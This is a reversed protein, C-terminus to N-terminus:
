YGASDMPVYYTWAAAVATGVLMGAIALGAGTAWGSKAGAARLAERAAGGAPAAVLLLSACTLPLADSTKPVTLGLLGATMTALVALGGRGAQGKRWASAASVSAFAAALGAAVLGLWAAAAALVLAASLGACSLCVLAPVQWGPGRASVLDLTLWALWVSLTLGAIWAGSEASSWPGTIKLRVVVLTALLVAGLVVAPSAWRGSRRAGALLGAVLGLMGLHAMWRDPQVPAWGPWGRLALAAIIVASGTALAGAWEPVGASERRWARACVLLVLLAVAGPLAVGRLATEVFPNM